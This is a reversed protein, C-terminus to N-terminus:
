QQVPFLVTDLDQVGFKGLGAEKSFRVLEEWNETEEWFVRRCGNRYQGCSERGKDMPCKHVKCWDWHRARFCSVHGHPQKRCLECSVGAFTGKQMHFAMQELTFPLDQQNPSNKIASQEKHKESHRSGRPVRSADHFPHRISSPAALNASRAANAPAGFSAISPPAASQPGQQGIYPHPSVLGTSPSSRLDAHPQPPLGASLPPQPYDPRTTRTHVQQPMRHIEMSRFSASLETMSPNASQSDLHGFSTAADHGASPPYDYVPPPPMPPRHPDDFSSAIILRSVNEQIINVRQEIADFREEMLQRYDNLDTRMANMASLLDTVHTSSM